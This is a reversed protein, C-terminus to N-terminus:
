VALSAKRLEDETPTDYALTSRADAHGALLMVSKIREGRKFMQTIRSRRISHTSYLAPDLGIEHCWGKFMQRVQECAMGVRATYDAGRTSRRTYVIWRNRGQGTFLPDDPAKDSNAALYRAVLAVTSPQLYCTVCRKKRRGTLASAISVKGQAITFHSRGSITGVALGCVDEIRLLSDYWVALLAANRLGRPSSDKALLATM